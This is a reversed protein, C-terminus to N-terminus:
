GLWPTSAKYEKANIFLIMGGGGDVVLQIPAGSIKAGAQPVVFGPLSSQLTKMTLSLPAGGTRGEAGFHRTPHRLGQNTTITRTVTQSPRLQGRSVIHFSKKEKKKKTKPVIEQCETDRFNNFNNTPKPGRHQIDECDHDAYARLGCKAHSKFDHSEAWRLGFLSLFFLLRSIRMM